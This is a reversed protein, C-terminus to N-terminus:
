VGKQGSTILKVWADIVAERTMDSSVDWWQRWASGLGKRSLIDQVIAEAVLRLSEEKNVDM